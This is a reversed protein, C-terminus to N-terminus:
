LETVKTAATPTIGAVGSGGVWGVATGGDFNFL